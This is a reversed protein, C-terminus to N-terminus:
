ALNSTHVLSTKAQLTVYTYLLFENIEEVQRTLMMINQYLVLTIKQSIHCFSSSSINHYCSCHWTYLKLTVVTIHIM